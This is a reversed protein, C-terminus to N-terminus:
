CCHSLANLRALDDHVEELFVNLYPDKDWESVPTEIRASWNSDAVAGPVNFRQSTGFLDTVMFIVVRCPLRLLAKVLLLHVDEFPKICPVEFGAWDALRRVEWWARDRAEADARTGSEGRAITTMWRDWLVRLPDHDHTAYTAIACEDYADMPTLRTDWELEWYPIRFGPVEHLLLSPRVYDPVTGLDEGVLGGEGSEELLIRLFREGHERNMRKESDTNDPRPHFRPLRGGCESEVAEVPVSAFHANMEPRWPFGYIRYIGLIHDMRFSHFIERNKRVRRRWWVFDEREQFGEDYLPVGWNQGWRQVFLDDQFAPEPPAGGSWTLDFRSPCEFVDASFYNVGFPIDGMLSVGKREAYARVSAWQRYAVWQVWSLFEWEAVWGRKAEDTLEEFYADFAENTRFEAPWLSWREDGKATDMIARFRVYATLWDSESSMWQKFEARAGDDPTRTKFRTFARRLVARKFPKVLDYAVRNVKRFPWGFHRQEEAIDSETLGPVESEDLAITLPELAVSSIANYPSHDSGTENIPLLQILGVNHSASWDILNRMAATDGVGFDRTGRLAFLPVLIGSVKKSSSEPKM